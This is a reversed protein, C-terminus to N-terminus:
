NARITIGLGEAVELAKIMIRFEGNERVLGLNGGKGESM